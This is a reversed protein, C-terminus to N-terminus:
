RESCRFLEGADAPAPAPHLCGFPEVGAPGFRAASQHAYNVCVLDGREARCRYDAFSLAAGDPLVPGAGTRFPGPDGHVSGVQLTTGDFDVWGGQWQGYVDTPPAPPAALDVLCALAGGTHRADTLCTTARAGGGPGAPVTFAIDAGLDTSVEDRVARHYGATDAPRGAEVWGIVAAIPAGRPPPAAPMPQASSTAPTTAAPAGAVPSEVPAPGGVTAGSCGAALLVVALLVSTRM